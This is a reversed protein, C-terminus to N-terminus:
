LERKAMGTETEGNKGTGLELNRSNRKEELRRDGAQKESNEGLEQNGTGTKAGNRGRKPLFELNVRRRASISILGCALIDAPQSYLLSPGHAGVQFFGIRTACRMQVHTVDHLRIGM